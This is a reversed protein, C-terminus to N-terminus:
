NNKRYIYGAPLSKDIIRRTVINVWRFNMDTIEIKGDDSVKEVIAVHGYVKHGWRGPAFVAIAWKKPIKGVPIGAKKANAYRDKAHGWFLRSGRSAFLDPRRSAAYDTCQGAVFGGAGIWKQHRTSLISGLGMDIDDYIFKIFKGIVDQATKRSLVSLDIKTGGDHSIRSIDVTKTERIDYYPLFIEIGEELISDPDQPNFSSVDNIDLKYRQAITKLTQNKTTDIISGWLPKPIDRIMAEKPASSIGISTAVTDTVVAMSSLGMCVWVVICYKIM